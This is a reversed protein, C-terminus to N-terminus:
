PCRFIFLLFVKEVYYNLFLLESILHAFLYVYKVNIRWKILYLHLYNMKNMVDLSLAEYKRANGFYLNHHSSELNIFSLSNHLKRKSYSSRINPNKLM